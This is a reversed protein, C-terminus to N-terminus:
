SSCVLEFAQLSLQLSKKHGFGRSAQMLTPRPKFFAAARLAAPKQVLKNPIRLLSSRKLPAFFIRFSLVPAGRSAQMLTPRPKFFAAARLAAPKQVLKNPIRLLSSRKLPAFFIRFSLVPAGRSAQM